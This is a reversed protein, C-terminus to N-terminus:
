RVAELHQVVVVAIVVLTFIALQVLGLRMQRKDTTNETAGKEDGDSRTQRTDLAEAGEAARRAFSSLAASPRAGALRTATESVRSVEDPRGWVLALARELTVAAGEDDRLSWQAEAEALLQEMESTTQERYDDHLGGMARNHRHLGGARPIM